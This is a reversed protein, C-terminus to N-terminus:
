ITKKFFHRIKKWFSIFKQILPNLSLTYECLTYIEYLTVAIIAKHKPLWNGEINEWYIDLLLWVRFLDCGWHMDFPIRISKNWNFEFSFRSLFGSSFIYMQEYYKKWFSANWTKLSWVDQLSTQLSSSQVDIFYRFIKSVQHIINRFFNFYKWDKMEMEPPLYYEITPPLPMEQVIGEEDYYIKWNELNKQQFERSFPTWFSRKSISFINNNISHKFNLWVGRTGYGISSIMDNLHPNVVSTIFYFPNSYDGITRKYWFKDFIKKTFTNLGINAGFRNRKGITTFMHNVLITQITNSDLTKQFYLKFVGQFDDFFEILKERPYIEKRIENENEKKSENEKQFTPEFINENNPPPLISKRNLKSYKQPTSPNNKFYENYFSEWVSFYEQNVEDQIINEDEEIYRGNPSFNYFLESGISWSNKGYEDQFYTVPIQIRDTPFLNFGIDINAYSLDWPNADHESDWNLSANFRYVEM